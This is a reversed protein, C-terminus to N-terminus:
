ARPTLRNPSAHSVFSRGASSRERCALPLNSTVLRAADRRGDQSSKDATRTARRRYPKPRSRCVHQLRTAPWATRLRAPDIAGLGRESAVADGALPALLRAVM